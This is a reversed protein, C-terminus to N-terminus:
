LMVGTLCAHSQIQWQQHWVRPPPRKSSYRRTGLQLTSQNSEFYCARKPQWHHAFTDLPSSTHLSPVASPSLHSFMLGATAGSGCRWLWKGGSKWCRADAGSRARARSLSVGGGGGNDRCSINTAGLSCCEVLRTECWDLRLGHEPLRTAAAPAAAAAM